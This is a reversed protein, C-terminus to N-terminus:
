KEEISVGGKGIEIQIGSTKKHEEYYRYGLLATIVALAGILLFLFNRSVM